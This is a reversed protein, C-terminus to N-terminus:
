LVSVFDAFRVGLPSDDLCLERFGLRPISGTNGVCRDQVDTGTTINVKEELSLGAVFAKARATADAWGGDGSINKAPVQVPSIWQEYGAPAADPVGTLTDAAVFSPLALVLATLSRSLM